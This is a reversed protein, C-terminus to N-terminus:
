TTELPHGSRRWGAMHGKLYLLHRFGRRRLAAAAMQARGGYACYLVIPDNTPAPIPPSGTLLKWFPILKAGPVHGRQFEHVSRVDIIAPAKGAKILRLLEASTIETDLKGAMMSTKM